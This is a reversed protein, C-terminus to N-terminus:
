VICQDWVRQFEIGRKEVIVAFEDFQKLIISDSWPVRMLEREQLQEEITRV